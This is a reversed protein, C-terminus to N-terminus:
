GGGAVLFRFVTQGKQSRGLDLPRGNLLALGEGLCRVWLTFQKRPLNATPPQPTAASSPRLVPAANPIPSASPLHLLAILERVESLACTGCSPWFRTPGGM